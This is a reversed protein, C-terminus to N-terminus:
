SNALDSSQRDPRLSEFERGGSGLDPARGLQAVGRRREATRVAHCNACVLECKVLEDLVLTRTRSEVLTSIADVKPPGPLHDWHMVASPFTDGCDACAVGRKLDAMWDRLRERRTRQRQRRRPGGRTEHYERDYERRCNRCYSFQGTVSNHFEAQGKWKRCRACLRYLEDQQTSAADGPMRARM